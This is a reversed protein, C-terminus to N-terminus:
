SRRTLAIYRIDAVEKGAVEVARLALKGRGKKMALAGVRLPRFDKVYSEGRVVRDEAAGVLPPDHAQTIRGSVSGDLFSLEVTSGTNAAACTYHIEADYDGSQAVDIDWTM